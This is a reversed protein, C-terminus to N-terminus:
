KGYKMNINHVAKNARIQEKLTMKARHLNSKSTGISINLMKAIENHSYNDLEYLCFTLRYQNPLNQILALIFDLSYEDLEDDNIATDPFDTGNIPTLHYSKKYSNIAKNITIKKMWGEFSGANKFNKISKFIEIFSDHLNDQAEEINTCYKLSLNFLNKAYLTYLAKQHVINDNVCGKIIEEIRLRM